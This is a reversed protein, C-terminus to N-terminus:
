RAASSAAVAIQNCEHGLPRPALSRPRENDWHAIRLEYRGFEPVGNVRERGIAIHSQSAQRIVAAFCILKSALEVIEPQREERVKRAAERCALLSQDLIQIGQKFIHAPMLM